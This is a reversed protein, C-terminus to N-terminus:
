GYNMLYLLVPLNKDFISDFQSLPLPNEGKGVEITFAPIEFEKIVWDKYGSFSAMGEPKLASYGSLEAMVNSLKESDNPICGNYDYYIEEGQSHYAICVDPSLESTFQALAMSEPESLPANGSFRTPGPSFIKERAEYLKGENFGADYNHNLDVGNINAQWKGIFDRSEGNYSILRTKTIQPIDDSLGYVSLNVGDPNVMPCIYLSTKEYIDNIDFQMFSIKNNYLYCLKELMAMVLISTIWEKGHHAANIFIKKDGKGFKLCFLEKHLVSYGIKIKSIFPYECLLLQTDNQLVNYGYEVDTTVINM